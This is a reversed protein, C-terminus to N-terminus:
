LVGLEALRGIGSPYMALRPGLLGSKQLRNLLPDLLSLDFVSRDTRDPLYCYSCNINCFPTPQITLLGLPSQGRRTTGQYWNLRSPLRGM